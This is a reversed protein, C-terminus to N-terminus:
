KCGANEPNGRSFEYIYTQKRLDEYLDCVLNGAKRRTAFDIAGESYLKEIFRFAGGLHLMGVLAAEGKNRHANRQEAYEIEREIQQMEPSLMFAAGSATSQGLRYGM